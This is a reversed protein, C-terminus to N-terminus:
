LARKHYLTVTKIGYRYTRGREYPKSLEPPTFSGDSECVVVGGVSLIDLAAIAELIKPLLNDRYPPDLFVIDFVGQHDRLYHLADM